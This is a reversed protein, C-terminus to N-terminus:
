NGTLKARLRKEIIKFAAALACFTLAILIDDIEGIFKEGHAFVSVLCAAVLSAFAALAVLVVAIGCRRLLTNVAASRWTQPSSTESPVASITTVNM